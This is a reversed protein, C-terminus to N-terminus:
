VGMFAARRSQLVTYGPEIGPTAEVIFDLSKAQSEPRSEPACLRSQSSAPFGKLTGRGNDHWRRRWHCRPPMTSDHISCVGSHPLGMTGDHVCTLGLALLVVVCAPHSGIACLKRLLRIPLVLPIEVDLQVIIPHLQRFSQAGPMIAQKESLLTFNKM